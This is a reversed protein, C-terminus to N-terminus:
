LGLLKCAIEMSKAYLSVETPTLMIHSLAFLSAAYSQHSVIAFPHPYKKSGIM